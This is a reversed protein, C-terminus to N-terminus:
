ESMLVNRIPYKERYKMIKSGMGYRYLYIMYVIQLVLLIVQSCVTVKMNCLIYAFGTIITFIITVAIRDTKIVEMKAVDNDSDFFKWQASSYFEYLFVAATAIHTPGFCTNIMHLFEAVTLPNNAICCISFIEVIFVGTSILLPILINMATKNFEITLVPQMDAYKDTAM